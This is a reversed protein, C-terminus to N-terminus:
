SHNKKLKTYKLNINVTIALSALETLQASSWSNTSAGLLTQCSTFESTTLTALQEVTLSNLSGSLSNLYTCTLATVSRRKRGAFSFSSLSSQVYYNSVSSILYSVSVSNNLGMRCQQISPSTPDRAANITTLM